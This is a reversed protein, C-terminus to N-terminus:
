LREITEERLFNVTTNTANCWLGLEKTKHFTTLDVAYVQTLYRDDLISVYTFNICDLM